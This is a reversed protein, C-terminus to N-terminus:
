KIVPTLKKFLTKPVLEQIIKEVFVDEVNDEDNNYFSKRTMCNRLESYKKRELEAAKLSATVSVKDTIYIQSYWDESKGEALRTDKVVDFLFFVHGNLKDRLRDLNSQNQIDGSYTNPNFGRNKEFKNLQTALDSVSNGPALSNVLLSKSSSMDGIQINERKGTARIATVSFNHDTSDEITFVGSDIVKQNDKVDKVTYSVESKASTLLYLKEVEWDPAATVGSNIPRREIKRETKATNELKLNILLDGAMKEEFTSSVLVIKVYPLTALQDGVAESLESTHHLGKGTYDSYIVVTVTAQKVAEEMTKDLNPYEPMLSKVKEFRILSNRANERGGQALLASAEEFYLDAVRKETLLFKELIASRNPKLDVRGANQVMEHIDLLNKYIPIAKHLETGTSAQEIMAIQSNWELNAREWADNLYMEAEAIDEGEKLADLSQKIATSYDGKLLAKAAKESSTACSSLLVLSMMLCMLLGAITKRM